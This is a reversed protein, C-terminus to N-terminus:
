EKSAAAGDDELAVDDMEITLAEDPELRVL